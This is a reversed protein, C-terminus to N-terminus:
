RWRGVTIGLPAPTETINASLTQAWAPAAQILANGLGRINNDMDERLTSLLEPRGYAKAFVTNEIRSRGDQSLQGEATFFRAQEGEPVITKAFSTVFGRNRAAAINGGQYQDLLGTPLDAADAAAQEATSMGLTTGTNAERAFRARQEMTMETLRRRILVPERMNVAQQHGQGVLWERYKQGGPLGQRYARTVALVRGNGSEVVGDSGVIPAGGGAKPSVGLLEPRLQGAMRTIQQASAARERQRPQIEQPYAPNKTLDDTHSAILNDAEVLEYKVDIENGRTTIVKQTGFPAPASVKGRPVQSIAEPRAELSAAPARPAPRALGPAAAAEITSTAPETLELIDEPTTPTTPTQLRERIKRAVAKERARLAPYNLGVEPAGSVIEAVGELAVEGPSTVRGETALQATAEGGAGGVAQVGAEAGGRLMTSLPGKAPALFRGALGGTLADFVGIAVGRKVARDRAEAMFAPDQLAQIVADNDLPDIGKAQMSTLLSASYEVAASGTGVGAGTGVPGGLSGLVGLGLAPLSMPLSEGIVSATASPNRVIALLAEGFGKAETIERLGETVAKSPPADEIRLQGQGIGRAATEPDMLGTEMGLVGIGQELRGMGREVSGFARPAPPERLGQIPPIAAVKAASLRARLSELTPAGSPRGGADAGTQREGGM